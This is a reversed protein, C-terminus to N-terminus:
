LGHQPDHEGVHSSVGAAVTGHSSATGTHAVHRALGAVARAAAASIMPCTEEKFM